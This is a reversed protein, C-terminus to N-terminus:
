PCGSNPSNGNPNYRCLMRQELNTPEMTAGMYQAITTSTGMLSGSVTTHGLGACHFMEHQIVNHVLRNRQVTSATAWEARSYIRDPFIKVACQDIRCFRGGPGDDCRTVSDGIGPSVPNFVIEAQGMVGAPVGAPADMLQASWTGPSADEMNVWDGGGVDNLIDIALFIGQNLRAGWNTGQYTGCSPNPAFHECGDVINGQYMLARDPAICYGTWTPLSCAAQTNEIGYGNDAYLPQELSGIIQEESHDCLQLTIVDHNEGVETENQGSCAALLLTALWASKAQRM